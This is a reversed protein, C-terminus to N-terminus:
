RRSKRRILRERIIFLVITVPPFAIYAVYAAARAPAPAVKLTGTVGTEKGNRGVVVAIQWNGPKPFIVPAAYLLKNQAQTRTPRVQFDVNSSEQHLIVWVDADLVPELGIKNQILLSIDSPGVSLLGPSTFVTIALEGFEKRLQVTGGDAFTTAQALIALVPPLLRTM